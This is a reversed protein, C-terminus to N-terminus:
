DRCPDGVSLFTVVQQVGQESEKQDASDPSGSQTPRAARRQTISLWESCREKPMIRNTCLDCECHGIIIIVCIMSWVWCSRLPKAEFKEFAFRNLVKREILKQSDIWDISRYLWYADVCCVSKVSKKRCKVKGSSLFFPITPFPFLLSLFIIWGFKVWLVFHTICHLTRLLTYYFFVESQSLSVSEWSSQSFASHQSDSYITNMVCVCLGRGIPFLSICRWVLWWTPGFFRYM